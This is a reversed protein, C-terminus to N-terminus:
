TMYRLSCPPHHQLLVFRSSSIEEQALTVQKGKGKENTDSPEPLPPPTGALGAQLDVLRAKINELARQAHHVTDALRGVTLDLV